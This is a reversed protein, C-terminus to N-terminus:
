RSRARHTQIMDSQVTFYENSFKDAVPVQIKDITHQMLRMHVEGSKSLHLRGDCETVMYEYFASVVLGIGTEKRNGLVFDISICPGDLTHSTAFSTDKALYTLIITVQRPNSMQPRLTNQIWDVAKGAFRLPVAIECLQSTTAKGLLSTPYDVVLDTENIVNHGTTLVFYIHAICSHVIRPLRNIWISLIMMVGLGRQEVWTALNITTPACLESSIVSVVGTGNVLAFIGFAGVGKEPSTM